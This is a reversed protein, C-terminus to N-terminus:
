LRFDPDISRVLEHEFYRQLRASTADLSEGAHLQAGLKAQYLMPFRAPKWIKWGKSLYGSNTRLLIPQLPAEARKAILAVSNPLPNVPQRTTRTGEPFILLLNGARVSDIAARFMRDPQRNSIYGALYAGIGLFLNSSISAKMLCVARPLRSLILFVDIMSPHNPVLVMGRQGNLADLARLDVRAAGCAEMGIFFVRCILSIGRQVVPERLRRPALILPLAAINGALLMAGLWTLLVYFLLVKDPRLHWQVDVTKDPHLSLRDQEHLGPCRKSKHVPM